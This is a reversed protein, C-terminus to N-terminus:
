RRRHFRWEGTAHRRLDYHDDHARRHHYGCLPIANALDTRGGLKWAILHHIETWAFPRECGGIACSDHQTALANRQGTTHLRRTRGLDLPVSKGGLVVPIIRANCALRRAEGASITVGTDLGAAGLGTRLADLGITVLLTTGNAAHGQEPLHELLELFALGARETWSHTWGPGALSTPDATGEALQTSTSACGMRRPASLRDLARLLLQAHLDPIVFRGTWTGDDNDHISLYTDTEAHSERAKLMAQEHQDALEASVVKFARRGAQRLRRPSLPRGTRSIAGTARGVLWEEAAAVQAPTAQPPAYHLVDLIVRVQELRLRGAAFAKRTHHCSERLVRAIRLGGAVKGANEGTLAAAWAETGTAAQRQALRREEVEGLVALRLAAVQSELGTLETLVAQVEGDGLRELPVRQLGELSARLEEVGVVLGASPLAHVTM